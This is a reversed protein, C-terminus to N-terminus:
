NILFLQAKALDTVREMIAASALEAAGVIAEEIDWAAAEYATGDKVISAKWGGSVLEVSLEGGLGEYRLNPSTVRHLTEQSFVIENPAYM